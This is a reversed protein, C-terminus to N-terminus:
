FSDICFTSRLIPCTGHPQGEFRTSTCSQLVPRCIPRPELRITTGLIDTAIGHWWVVGRALDDDTFAHGTGTEAAADGDDQLLVDERFRIAM